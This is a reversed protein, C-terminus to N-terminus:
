KKKLEKIEESAQKFKEKWHGRSNQLDRIKDDKKRLELQRRIAKEKWKNCSDQSRKLQRREFSDM